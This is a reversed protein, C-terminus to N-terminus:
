DGEEDLSLAPWVFDRLHIKVPLSRGRVLDIERVTTRCYRVLIREGARELAVWEHALARSVEWRVGHLWLGGNVGLRRVWAGEAYAWRKPRPDFRRASPHWRSAPTQMALAEHPREHNYERRFEDLWPQWDQKRQPRGRRKLARQMSGHLREVKGQTQPHRYGSFCLQIGQQMLWVSLRTWGAGQMNWWPTGHDMLMQDPMGCRGFVEELAERVGASGTQQQARLGLLYRSHDDLISLPLLGETRWAAPIGKFDMQWLENSQQREFRKLAPRIRDDRHVLGHRLLIRHVTSATLEVGQEVLKVRLKRAGWDPRRRREKLVQRELEAATRRPSRHPRRSREQLGSVGQEQYRRLWKYGSARSIGFERCLGAMTREGRAALVAFRIREEQM